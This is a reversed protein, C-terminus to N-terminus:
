PIIKRIGIESLLFSLYKVGGAEKIEDNSQFFQSLTIKNARGEEDDVIQLIRKYIIANVELAFHEPKLHHSLYSVVDNNLIMAGLLSSEAAQNYIGSETPLTIRTM